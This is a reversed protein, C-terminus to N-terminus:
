IKNKSDNDNEDDFVSLVEEKINDDIARYRAFAKSGEVHGTMSSILDPDKVTAYLIGIFNRRAMHSSAVEYIPRQEELRTTPNLVTVVRNIGAIRLMDKIAKNYKQQSIFPLLGLGGKYREIIEKARSRLPIRAVRGSEHLTKGPIYEIAGNVINATTLSYFDGIRMGVLSQLVFIDRQIGLAPRKLSFDYDYLQKLEEKTMYYPTGYVCESLKYKRFPSIKIRQTTECWNFFTRLRKMISYVANGGRVQPTRTEPVAEYLHQNRLCTGHEDFFTHEIKIFAELESLLTDTWDALEEGSGVYLAFRRLIRRVVMMQKHQEHKKVRQKIFLEFADDVTEHLGAEVTPLVGGNHFAAIRDRWFQSDVCGDVDVVASNLFRELEDIKNQLRSIATQEKGPIRPIILREKAANWSNVPVMIGSGLRFVCGRKYSFRFKVESMGDKKKKSLSKKIM